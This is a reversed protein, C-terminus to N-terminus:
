GLAPVWFYAIFSDFILKLLPYVFRDRPDSADGQLAKHHCVNVMPISNDIKDVFGHYIRVNWGVSLHM